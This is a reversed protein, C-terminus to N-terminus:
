SNEEFINMRIGLRLVCAPRLSGRREGVADARRPCHSSSETTVPIPGSKSAGGPSGTRQFILMPVTITAGNEPLDDEYYIAQRSLRSVPVVTLVSMPHIYLTRDGEYHLRRSM